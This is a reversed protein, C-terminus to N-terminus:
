GSVGLRYGYRIAITRAEEIDRQAGVEHLIPLAEALAAQGDAHRGLTPALAAQAVLTRATEHPSAAERLIALSRQLEAWAGAYDGDQMLIQGLTRRTMGEETRAELRAANALSMECALRAKTLDDRGLHLEALYRDLEPLFDEAGAQDFLEVSRRLHDEAVELDGRLLYTAGLNMHLVGSMYLSGIREYIALGQTFQAIAEDINGQLKLMDGLNNAIMGQHYVDGIAQKIEAAAEFHERAEALRGLAQSMIALNNHADALRPLEQTQEYLDLSRSTLEFARVNDGLNSYASGLHMFAEAQGRTSGLHEALRLAREGWELV